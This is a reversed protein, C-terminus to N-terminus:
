PRVHQRAVEHAGLYGRSEDIHNHSTPHPIHNNYPIVYISYKDIYKM